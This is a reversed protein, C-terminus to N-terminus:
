SRFFRSLLTLFNPLEIKSESTNIKCDEKKCESPCSKTSSSESSTSPCSYDESSTKGIKFKNDDIKSVLKVIEDVTIKDKDFAIKATNSKRGEKFDFEVSCVAKTGFLEKRISAGCGMVCSMGSVEMSLLRDAEITSCNDVVTSVHKEIRVPKSDSSTCSALFLISVLFTIQLRMIIIQQNISELFWQM